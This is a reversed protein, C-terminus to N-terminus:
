TPPRKGESVHERLEDTLEALLGRRTAAAAMQIDTQEIKAEVLRLLRAKRGSDRPSALHSEIEAISFGLSRARGIFAIITLAGDDYERYGSALRTPPPLLGRAEYFRVRSATVGARKALIGIRM